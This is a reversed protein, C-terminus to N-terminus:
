CRLAATIDSSRFGRAYLAAMLKQREKESLSAPDSTRRRIQRRLATQEAEEFADGMLEIREERVTDFAEEIVERSIGKENLRMSLRRSSEEEQRSRLLNVAFRLDDVYHYAEAYEVAEEATEAPYGDAVLRESLEKRSRDKAILLNLVRKKARPLLADRLIEAWLEETLLSGEELEYQRLEAPYLSFLFEDNVYVKRKRSGKCSEISTITREM